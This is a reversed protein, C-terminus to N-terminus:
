PLVEEIRPTAELVAAAGAARLAAAASAPDEGPAVVGIPLVGAGRAAAVDDPTDGLMWAHHAGLRELALRVPAPDPKSPADEMTVVAAFLDAVGHEALFREADARPRGTVIALPRRAGLRELTERDLLPREHRRLGPRSAAGQYLKEFRDTVEELPREVGREALLRRTLRWDNTADGAAKGRAVDAPSLEVGFSAATAVIAARYSGSVDAVVGDMDLLLADPDLVTRLTHELRRWLGDDGPVTIRLWDRLDTRDPWGRVAIGLAALGARVFAADPFRALVFNGESPLAEVDLEALLRALRGRESRVRELRGAPPAPDTELLREVAALSPAAVSYPQGLARLWGVVRPDGAVWGVRLGAAGWAKSFTRFVLVNPHSLAVGTLDDDAFEAYAHDLLVLSSPLRRALAELGHRSIVAGTPNNPSVVAVLAPAPDAASCAAEVPYEGRWWELEVPEAGALRVYRSLMEFSPTTLVATRGPACVSRVARELADDAGATVLVAAPDLGLSAALRAELRRASPYRHVGDGALSAVPAPAENADLFLEIGAPPRGPSYPRLDALLPIPAVHLPRPSPTAAVRDDGAASEPPPRLASSPPPGEVGTAGPPREPREPPRASDSASSPPRRM